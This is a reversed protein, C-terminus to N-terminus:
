GSYGTSLVGDVPNGLLISYPPEVGNEVALTRTETTLQPTPSAPAWDQTFGSSFPDLVADLRRVGDRKM